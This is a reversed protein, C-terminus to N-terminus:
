SYDKDGDGVGGYDHDDSDGNREDVGDGASDDHGHAKCSVILMAMMIPVGKVMSVM